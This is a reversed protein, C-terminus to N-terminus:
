NALVVHHGDATVTIGDQAAAVSTLGLGEPLHAIPLTVDIQHRLQNELGLASFATPVKDAHLAVSHGGDASLTSVVSLQSGLMPGSLRVRAGGGAAPGGYSVTLGPINIAKQLDAYTLFVQGDARDAVASRFGNSLKVGHLDAHLSEFRVQQGDSSAALGQASVKVHDLKGSLVQTLFPFGEISVHPKSSLGQTTQAQQAAKNQAISVTIRDAAVFLGFLVVLVILVNRAVRM